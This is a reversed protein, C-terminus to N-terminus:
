LYILMFYLIFIVVIVVVIIANYKHSKDINTCTARTWENKKRNPIQYKSHFLIYKDMIENICM